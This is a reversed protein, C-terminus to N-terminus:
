NVHTEGAKETMLTKIRAIQKRAETLQHPQELAGENKRKLRLLFQQKRLLLLEAKLEELGMAKLKQKQDALRSM